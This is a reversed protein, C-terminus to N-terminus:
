GWRLRRGSARAGSGGQEAAGLERGWRPGAMESCGLGPWPGCCSRREVLFSRSGSIRSRLGQRPRFQARHQRLHFGDAAKIGRRRHSESRGLGRPVEAPTGRASGHPDFARLRGADVEGVLAARGRRESRAASWWASGRRDIRARPSCGTTRSKRNRYTRYATAWGQARVVCALAGGGYSWRPSGEAARCRWRMARNQSARAGLMRKAGNAGEGTGLDAQVRARRRAGGHLGAEATAVADGLRV